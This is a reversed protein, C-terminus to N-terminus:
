LNFRGKIANYNQLIEQQSLTRNYIKTTFIKGNLQQGTDLFGPGRTALKFYQSIGSYQSTLNTTLIKGNTYISYVGNYHMLIFQTILPNTVIVDSYYMREYNVGDGVFICIRGGWIEFDLLQFGSSGNNFSFITQRNSNNNNMTDSIGLVEITFDNSTNLIFPISVIDDVGDFVMSGGSFNVGNVLTGNNGNGSLDNWTTGTGPYSKVNAADLYMVLGDKVISPGRSFAM